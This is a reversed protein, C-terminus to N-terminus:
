LERNEEELEEEEGGGVEEEEEEEEGEEESFRGAEEISPLIDFRHSGNKGDLITCLSM